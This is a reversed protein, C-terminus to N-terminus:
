PRPSFPFVKPLDAQISEVTKFSLANLITMMLQSRIKSKGDPCSVETGENGAVVGRRGNRGKWEASSEWAYDLCGGEVVFPIFFWTRCLGRLGGIGEETLTANLRQRLSAPVTARSILYHGEANV